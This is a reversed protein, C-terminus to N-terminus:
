HRLGRAASLSFLFLAKRRLSTKDHCILKVHRLFAVLGGFLLELVQLGDLTRLDHLADRFRAAVAVERLVGFVVGGAVLLGGVLALDGLEVILDLVGDDDFLRVVVAHHM